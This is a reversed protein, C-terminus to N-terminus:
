ELLGAIGGFCFFAAVVGAFIRKRRFIRANDAQERQRDSGYQVEVAVLKQTWRRNFVLLVLGLTLLAASMLKPGTVVV